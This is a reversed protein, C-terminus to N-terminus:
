LYTAAVFGGWRRMFRQRDEWDESGRPRTANELHLIRGLDMVQVEYGLRRAALCLAVDQAETRYGEDFGGIDMFVASRIMLCAGTVAPCTWAAQRLAPLPQRSHPHFCFGTLPGNRFVDIGAHQILGDEFYMVPGVAALDPNEELAKYLNWLATPTDSLIVDNNLFLVTDFRSEDFFVDNNCRSFQYALGRKVAVWDPAAGYLSLVKPDTSGTDGILVEFGLGAKTFPERCLALSDVLPVILEPKDLNLIIISLGASASGEEGQTRHRAARGAKVAQARTWNDVSQYANLRQDAPIVSAPM